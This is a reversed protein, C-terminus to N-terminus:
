KPPPSIPLGPRHGCAQILRTLDGAAISSLAASTHGPAAAAAFPGQRILSRQQL